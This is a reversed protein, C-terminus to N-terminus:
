CSKVHHRQCPQGVEANCEGNRRATQIRDNTSGAQSQSSDLATNLSLEKSLPGLIMEKTKRCNINMRNNESWEILEDAAQRMSSATDKEVTESITTDDLYKYTRLRLRLDDILIIFILPRLWSAQPMGGRLVTWNSVVHSIKLRQQRSWFCSAGNGCEDIM